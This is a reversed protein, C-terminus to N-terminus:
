FNPIMSPDLPPLPKGGQTLRITYKYVTGRKSADGLFHCTFKTPESGPKCDFDRRLEGRVSIGDEAFALKRDRPLEFVIVAGKRRIYTPEQDVVIWTDDIVYVKPNEPDFPVGLPGLPRTACASLVAACAAALLMTRKM